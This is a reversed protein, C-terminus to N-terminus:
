PGVTVNSVVKASGLVSVGVNYTGAPVSFTVSWSGTADVNTTQQAILTGTAADKVGVRVQAGIQDCTGDAVSDNANAHGWPNQNAVPNNVILQVKTTPPM